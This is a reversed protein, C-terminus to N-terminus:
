PKSACIARIGRRALLVAATTLAAGKPAGALTALAAAIATTDAVDDFQEHDLLAEVDPHHCFASKREDIFNELWRAARERESRGPLAGLGDGFLDIALRDLLEGDSLEVLQAIMPESPHSMRPDQRVCERCLKMAATPTGTNEARCQCQRSVGLSPRCTDCM